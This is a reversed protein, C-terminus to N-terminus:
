RGDERVVDERVLHGRTRRGLLNNVGRPSSVAEALAQAARDRGKAPAVRHEVFEVREGVALQGVDADSPAVDVPHEVGGEGSLVAGTALRAPNM